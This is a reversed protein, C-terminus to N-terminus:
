TVFFFDFFWWCRLSSDFNRVRMLSQKSQKRRTVRTMDCCYLTMIYLENLAAYLIKTFKIRLKSNGFKGIEGRTIYFANIFQFWATFSDCM